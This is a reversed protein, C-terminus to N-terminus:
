NLTMDNNFLGKLSFGLRYSNCPWDHHDVFHQLCIGANQTPSDTSPSYVLKVDINYQRLTIERIFSWNKLWDWPLLHMYWHHSFAYNTAMLNKFRINFCINRVHWCLEQFSHRDVYSSMKKPYNINPGSLFNEQDMKSNFRSIFQIQQM